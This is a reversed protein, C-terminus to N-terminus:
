AVKAVYSFGEIELDPLKLAIFSLEKIKEM